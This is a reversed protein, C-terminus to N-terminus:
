CVRWACTCSAATAAAVGNINSLCVNLHEGRGGGTQERDLYLTCFAIWAHQQLREAHGGKEGGASLLKRAPHTPPPHM